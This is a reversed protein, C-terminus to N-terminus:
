TEGNEREGELRSIRSEFNRLAEALNVGGLTERWAELREVRAALDAVMTADIAPATLDKPTIVGWEPPPPHNLLILTRQSANGRELITICPDLDPSDLLQRIPRYYAKSVGAEEFVDKLKGSFAREGFSNSFSQKDMIEYVRLAHRYIATQRVEPTLRAIEEPRM